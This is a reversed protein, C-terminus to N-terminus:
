SVERLLREVEDLGMDRSEEERDRDADRVDRSGLVKLLLGNFFKERNRENKRVHQLLSWAGSSPARNRGSKLGGKSAREEDMHEYVWTIDRVLNAAAVTTIDAVVGESSEVREDEEAFVELLPKGRLGSSVGEGGLSSGVDRKRGRNKRCVERLRERVEEKTLQPWREDVARYAIWKYELDKMGPKLRRLELVVAGLYSEREERNRSQRIRYYVGQREKGRLAVAGSALLCRAVDVPDYASVSSGSVRGGAESGAEVMIVFDLM